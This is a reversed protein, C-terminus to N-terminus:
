YPKIVFLLEGAEITQGDSVLVEVVLGAVGAKLHQMLKMVEIICVTTDEQVEDGVSVFPPHSPSPKRWFIGMSSAVVTVSGDETPADAIREPRQPRDAAPETSERPHLATHGPNVTRSEDIVPTSAVRSAVHATDTSPTEPEPFVSLILESDDDKLHIRDWSGDAFANLVRMVDKLEFGV